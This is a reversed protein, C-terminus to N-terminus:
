AEIEERWGALHHKLTERGRLIHSKVTGLPMDLIEAAEGHSHGYSLCLTVAAREEPRLRAMAREVDLRALGAAPCTRDPDPDPEAKAKRAQQLFVRWAIRFLWPRFRAGDDLQALKTWASVLAEQAADDALAADGGCLRRCYARLDGQHRAVLAAFATRDGALADAVQAADLSM